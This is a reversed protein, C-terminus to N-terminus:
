RWGGVPPRESAGSAPPAPGSVGPPPRYGEARQLALRHEVPRSLAAQLAARVEGPRALLDALAVRPGPELRLCQESADLVAAIESYHHAVVLEPYGGLRHRRTAQYSRILHRDANTLEFKPGWRLSVRVSEPSPQRMRAVVEHCRQRRVSRTGQELDQLMARVTASAPLLAHLRAAQAAEAAAHDAVFAARVQQLRDLYGDVSWAGDGGGGGVLRNSGSHQQHDIPAKLM